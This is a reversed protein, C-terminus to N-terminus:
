VVEGLLAVPRKSRKLISLKRDEVRMVQNNAAVVKIKDSKIRFIYVSHTIYTHIHASYRACWDDCLKSIKCSPGHPDGIFCRSARNEFNLIAASFHDFILIAVWIHIQWNHESKLSLPYRLTKLTALLSNPTM